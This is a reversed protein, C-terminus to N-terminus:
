LTLCSFQYKAAMDKRYRPGFFLISATAHLWIIFRTVHHYHLMHNHLRLEEDQLRIPYCRLPRIRRAWAVLDELESGRHLGDWLILSERLCFSLIGFQFLVRKM